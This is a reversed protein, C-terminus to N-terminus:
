RMTWYEVFVSMKPPNIECSDTKPFIRYSNELIQWYPKVTVNWVPFFSGNLIKLHTDVNSATLRRWLLLFQSGLAFLLGFSWVSQPPYRLDRDNLTMEPWLIGSRKAVLSVCVFYVVIIWIIWSCLRFRKMKSNEYNILWLRVIVESHGNFAFTIISWPFDWITRVRFSGINTM